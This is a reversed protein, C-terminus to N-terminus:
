SMSYWNVFRFSFCPRKRYHNGCNKSHAVGSKAWGDTKRDSNLKPKTNIATVKRVEVVTENHKSLVSVPYYPSTVIVKEQFYKRSEDYDNDTVM